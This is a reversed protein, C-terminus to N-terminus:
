EIEEIDVNPVAGYKGLLYARQVDNTSNGSLEQISYLESAGDANSKDAFYFQDDRLLQQNMLETDHTTFLVQAGNPNTKKSQFKSVIYEVLTPHLGKDIEDILLVGGKKLSTEIAPALTMIRRTGDSEDSLNLGYETVNGDKNIGQHLATATVRGMELQKTRNGDENSSNNLAAIFAVLANKINESLERSYNGTDELPKRDFEYKMDYIGFDASKAYNSIEQLMQPNDSYHLLQVPIDPYDRSFIVNERFWAMARICSHDNMTNAVSFFLQNEAVTEAILRRRAKDRTFQFNQGDRKFVCAKQGNPADYLYESFIKNKTASFGYWYKINGSIYEFSFETPENYSYDNFSFPTVPILAGEHQTRQANLIFQVANWFARIVNSKGGGNKGYIAVGPLIYKGHYLILNNKRKGGREAVLSLETLDRFSRYNKFKFNILMIIPELLAYLYKFEVTSFRTTVKRELNM